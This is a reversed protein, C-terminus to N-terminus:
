HATQTIHYRFRSDLLSAGESLKAIASLYALFFPEKKIENLDAKRTIYLLFSLLHIEDARFNCKITNNEVTKNLLWSSFLASVKPM